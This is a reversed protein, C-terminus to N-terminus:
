QRQHRLLHTNPVLPINRCFHQEAASSGANGTRRRQRNTWWLAEAKSFSSYCQLSSKYQQGSHVASMFVAPRFQRGCALVPIQPHLGHYSSLGLGHTQSPTAQAPETPQDSGHQQLRHPLLLGALDPGVLPAAEWLCKPHYCLDGHRIADMFRQREGVGVGRREGPSIFAWLLEETSAEHHRLVFPLSFHWSHRHKTHEVTFGSAKIHVAQTLCVPLRRPLVQTLFVLLTFLMSYYTIITLFLYWRKYM